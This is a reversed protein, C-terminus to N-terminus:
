TKLIKDEQEKKKAEEPDTKLVLRTGPVKEQKEPAPVYSTPYAIMNKAMEIAGKLSNMLTDKVADPADKDIDAIVKLLKEATDYVEGGASVTDIFPDSDKKKEESLSLSENIQKRLTYKQKLTLNAM